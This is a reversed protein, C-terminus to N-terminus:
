RIFLHIQILLTQYKKIFETPPKLGEVVSSFGNIQSEAQSGLRLTESQQSVGNILNPIAHNILPM